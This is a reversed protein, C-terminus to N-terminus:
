SFLIAETFIALILMFAYDTSDDRRAFDVAEYVRFGIPRKMERRM